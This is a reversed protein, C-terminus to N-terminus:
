AEDVTFTVGGGLDVMTGVIVSTPEGARLKQPDKGPMAITTGNRSHLDTVVVTGGELAFRVHTRSIDQDAGGVTILKPMKGGSVQSVSPSRGVLIPQSLPERSGDALVLSVVPAAPAPPPVDAAAKPKRRGRLKAIDSTLVTQGDHDGGSDSGSDSDSDSDADAPAADPAEEDDRVAADAVSRYMTDGFLYDYGEPSTELNDIAVTPTEAPNATPAESVTAESVTAEIDVGAPTAETAETASAPLATSAPPAITPAAAAVATSGEVPEPVPTSRSPVTTVEGVTLSAIWAAGSALPLAPVDAPEADVVVVSVGTAADFSREVWTSVGSGALSEDGGAGTVGVTVDGRVIVRLGGTFDLLAFPPTASLGKSTILDLIRQLGDPAGIAAWLAAVFVDNPSAGVVLVRSESSLAIWGGSTAAVAQRNSASTM